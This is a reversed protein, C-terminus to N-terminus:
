RVPPLLTCSSWKEEPFHSPATPLTAVVLGVAVVVVVAVVIVAVGVVVVVAVAVAVVAAVVAAVFVAGAVGTPFAVAAAVAVVVLMPVGTTPLVGAGGEAGVMLACLSVVAVAREGVPAATRPVRGPWGGVLGVGAEVVCRVAVVLPGPPPSGAPPKGSVHMAKYPAAAPTPKRIRHATHALTLLRQRPMAVSSGLWLPHACGAPLIQIVRVIGIVLSACRTSM